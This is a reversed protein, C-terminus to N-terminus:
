RSEIRTFEENNMEMDDKIHMHLIHKSIDQVINKHIEKSIVDKKGM